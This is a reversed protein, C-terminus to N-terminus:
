EVGLLKRFEDELKKRVKPIEDKVSTYSDRMKERSKIIDDTNTVGAEKYFNFQNYDWFATHFSNLIEDIIENTNEKFYIKNKQYFSNFSNYSTSANETLKKEYEKFDGSTQKLPSTLIAMASNLEVLKNYLEEIIELRKNHLSTQKSQLLALTSKFEELRKNASKEILKQIFFAAIAFIGIESGIKILNDIM